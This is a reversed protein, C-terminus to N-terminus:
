NHIDSEELNYHEEEIQFTTHTIGFEQKMLANADNLIDEHSMNQEVLLHCSLSPYNSTITWVHLDHTEIVGSIGELQQKVKEVDIHSPSGEMLVHVSEKTVRVASILILIAVIVSAIPDAINWGFQIILLAAIIAGISGLMDGLVHLFASRLNLNGKTDGRMLVWAAVINVVLGLIGIIMMGSGVVSPPEQFRHFAEYFIYISVVILTVGNFLAALIEFRKFGFTKAKTAAKEGVVLALLSLGLSVADSLMHGADSLLALSNTILGGIVEAVMFLTTILFAFLLAKKNSGHSHNHSHSEM